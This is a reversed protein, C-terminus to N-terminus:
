LPQEEVQYNEAQRTFMLYYKGKADMLEDHTGTEIVKGNEIHYIVDFDRVTSLRHAVMITTATNAKDLILKMLNYEALPDLASSPEDLLLLGFPGTFLRAIAIRQAEGGSLVAGDETFERSVMTDFDGGIKDLVEELGLKAMIESLQEDTADNYATLNARLSMALVRVDQYAIGIKRRLAHIDYERIDRGNIMVSGSDVDYLRLLLKTLTSKGAGNEGVIAIRGGAPIALNLGEIGFKAGEYGFSMDKFEVSYQGDPAPVADPPAPAPEIVSKTEFVKAIREGYVTYEFLQAFTNFFISINAALTGTALTLSAYMGIRSTDGDIVFIIIFLLVVSTQIPMLFQNPINFKLTKLIYKFFVSLYNDYVDSYNQLLKEGARSSRMEAANEKQQIVRTVYSLPRSLENMSMSLELSLKTTPLTLATQLAIFVLTVVLLVPGAQAIIAGMALATVISQILQPVVWQAQSAYNTYSQQAFSFNNFFEPSDYYKFDTHLAKYNIEYEIKTQIKIQAITSYTQQIFSQVVAVIAIGLTFLAVTAIIESTPRHEMVANIASEPLLATLVSSLPSFVAAMVISVVMYLRGYKWYPRLLFGVYRIKALKSM